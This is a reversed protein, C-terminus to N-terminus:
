RLENLAVTNDSINNLENQRGIDHYFNCTGTSKRNEQYGAKFLCVHVMVVM